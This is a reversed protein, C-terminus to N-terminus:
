YPVPYYPPRYIPGPHYIPPPAPYFPHPAFIPAPIPLFLNDANQGNQVNQGAPTNQEAPTAQGSEAPLAVGLAVSVLAALVASKFFM